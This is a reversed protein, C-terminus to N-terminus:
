ARRRRKEPAERQAPEEKSQTSGTSLRPKPPPLHFMEDFRRGLAEAFAAVVGVKPDRRKEIRQVTAKAIPPDFREGLRELTIDVHDRWEKLFIRPPRRPGIRDM